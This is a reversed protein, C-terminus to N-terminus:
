GAKEAKPSDDLKVGNSELFKNDSPTTSDMLQNIVNLTDTGSIEFDLSPILEKIVTAIESSTQGRQDKTFGNPNRLVDGAAAIELHHSLKLPKCELELGRINIKFNKPKLDNITISM